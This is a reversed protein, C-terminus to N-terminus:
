LYMTKKSKLKECLHFIELFKIEHFKFVKVATCANSIFVINFGLIFVNIASYAIYRCVPDLRRFSSHVSKGM